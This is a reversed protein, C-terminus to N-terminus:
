VFVIFRTVVKLILLAAYAAQRIHGGLEGKMSGGWVGRGRLHGSARDGSSEVLLWGGRGEGGGGQGKRSGLGM